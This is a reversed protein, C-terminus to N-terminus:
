IVREFPKIRRSSRFDLGESRGEQKKKKVRTRLDVGLADACEVVKKEESNVCSM